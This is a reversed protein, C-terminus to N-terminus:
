QGGVLRHVNRGTSDSKSSLREGAALPVRIRRYTELHESRLRDEVFLPHLLDLERCLWTAEPPVLRTHVDRILETSEGVVDRAAAFQELADRVAVRAEFVGVGLLTLRLAPWGQAVLRTCLAALEDVVSPSPVHAFCAVSDRVRGGLLEYAPVELAKGKIDWWAIDVAAVAASLV